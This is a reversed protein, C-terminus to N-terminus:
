QTSKAVMVLRSYFLGLLWLLPTPKSLLFNILILTYLSSFFDDLLEKVLQLGKLARFVM